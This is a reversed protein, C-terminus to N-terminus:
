RKNSFYGINNVKQGQISHFASGRLSTSEIANGPIRHSGPWYYNFYIRIIFYRLAIKGRIV